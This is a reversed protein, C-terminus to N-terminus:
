FVDGLNFFVGQSGQIGVAYDVALYSSSKKSLCLRLGAGGAPALRGYGTAPNRASQGNAFVVGGLVRSRTLNFRYEAEGYV